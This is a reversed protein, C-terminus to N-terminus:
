PNIFTVELDRKDVLLRYFSLFKNYMNTRMKNKTAVHEM